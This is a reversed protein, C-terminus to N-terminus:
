PLILKILKSVYKKNARPIQLYIVNDFHLKPHKREISWIYTSMMMRAEKTLLVGIHHKHYTAMNAFSIEDKIITYPM